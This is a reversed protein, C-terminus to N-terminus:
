RWTAGTGAGAATGRDRARSQEGELQKREVDGAPLERTELQPLAGRGGGISRSQAQGAVLRLNAAATNTQAIYGARQAGAQAGLRAQEAPDAPQPQGQSPAATADAADNEHGPRGDGIALNGPPVWLVRTAPVDLRELGIRERYDDITIAGRGLDQAARDAEARQHRSLVWVDSTDHRLWLDDDGGHPTLQDLQDDILALLPAMRHEWFMAYEADANDFTRGSANGMMSEPVGFVMSAEAKMRDMVQGWEMDRPNTTLDAYTMGEAQIAMTGGQSARHNFKAELKEVTEPGVEGKVSLLADPRGQNQMLNRNYLRAHKDLDVSLGAAEMPSTGRHLITPHPSRLWLVSNTADSAPDFAPLEDYVSGPDDVTKRFQFYALPNTKSPAPDTLDPDLLTFMAYGGARNRSVEVFLGKSSLLWQALMRHRWLKATEFSNARRNLRYLLRTPDATVRKGKVPDGRRLVVQRDLATNCIVEVSRFVWPNTQFGETVARDVNWVPHYPQGAISYTRASSRVRAALTKTELEGPGPGPGRLAPLFRRPM